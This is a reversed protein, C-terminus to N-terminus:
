KYFMFSFNFPTRLNEAIYRSVPKRKGADRFAAMMAKIYIFTKQEMSYYICDRILRLTIRVAMGAPYNKWVLWFANRTFYFPARWSERNKPSYKHYSIIDPFFEIKYGADLIRFATDQENWYLFFEEPYYGARELVDRRIGAGAGNFSMLYDRAAAAGSDGPNRDENRIDDYDFYNRVDFAAVGLKEDQRFKDVMNAIADEGPFSDDDLIVIYEGGAKKFGFNYAEIGINESMKILQVYPFENEIMEITGDTSCNDSVIVEINPYTQQQLRLLGERVDEKRNWCLIVVSVLPKDM